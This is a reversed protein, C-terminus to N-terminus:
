WFTQFDKDSIDERMEYSDRLWKKCTRQQRGIWVSLTHGEPVDLNGGHERIYRKIKLFDRNWQKEKPSKQWAFYIGKEEDESTCQNPSTDPQEPSAYEEQSQPLYTHNIHMARLSRSVYKPPKVEVNFSVRHKTAKKSVHDYDVSDRSDKRALDFQVSDRPSHTAFKSCIRGTRARSIPTSAINAVVSTETPCAVSKKRPIAGIPTNNCTPMKSQVAPRISKKRPIAASGFSTMHDKQKVLQKNKPRDPSKEEDDDNLSFLSEEDSSEFDSEEHKYPPPEFTKYVPKKQEESATLDTVEAIMPQSVCDNEQQIETESNHSFLSCDSSDDHCNGKAPTSTTVGISIPPNCTTATAGNEEAAPSVSDDSHSFLSEDSSSDDPKAPQKMAQDYLNDDKVASITEENDGHSFLSSGDSSAGDVFPFAAAAAAAAAAAQENTNTGGEVRVSSENNSAENEDDAM